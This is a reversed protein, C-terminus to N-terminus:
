STQPVVIPAGCESCCDGPTGRLDYGCEACFNLRGGTLEAAVKIAVRRRIRRYLLWQCFWFPANMLLGILSNMWPSILSAIFFFVAALICAVWGFTYWPQVAAIEERTYTQLRLLAKEPPFVALEPYHGLREYKSWNAIKGLFGVM